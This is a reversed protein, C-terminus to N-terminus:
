HFSVTSGYITCVACEYPDKTKKAYAFLRRKSIANLASQEIADELRESCSSPSFLASKQNCEPSAATGLEEGVTHAGM